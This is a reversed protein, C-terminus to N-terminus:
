KQARLAEYRCYKLLLTAIPAHPYPRRSARRTTRTIIGGSLPM